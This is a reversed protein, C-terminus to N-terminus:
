RREILSIRSKVAAKASPWSRTNPPSKLRPTLTRCALSNTGDSGGVGLVVLAM